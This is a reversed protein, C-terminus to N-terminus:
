ARVPVVGLDRGVRGLIALAADVHTDTHASGCSMRLLCADPPCAPPAVVNVYLGGALLARWLERTRRLDGVTVPIIPSAVPGIRYGLDLLGARMRDVARWLREALGRESTAIALAERVGAINAPSGSATFLYPRALMHLAELEPHDSVVFGGVGALTKSFTGVVFDVEGLVGQAEACGLGHEGYPGLSHAEDVVLYAGNQRCAEVIGPLPAVDGHISYVGEVVVLRNKGGPPLRSLQRVLFDVSNHRFGVITAGSLRAADYLSAHCDTDLVVFDGPGCLAGVVALNGQYGTTFVAAVRKGYAEALARELDRHIALTGNAIRSGTTASGYRELAARAAAIVRADATLGFYNNSGFVLTRRGGVIAEAPGLVEDIVTELPRASTADYTRALEALSRLKQLLDAM